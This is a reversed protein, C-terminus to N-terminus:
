GLSQAPKPIGSRSLTPISHHPEVFGEYCPNRQARGMYPSRRKALMESKSPLPRYACNSGYIRGTLSAKIAEPGSPNGRTKMEIM